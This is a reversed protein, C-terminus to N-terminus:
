KVPMGMLRREKPTCQEWFWRRDRASWRVMEMAMRYWRSM